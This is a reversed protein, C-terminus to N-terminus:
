SVSCDPANASGWWGGEALLLREGSTCFM